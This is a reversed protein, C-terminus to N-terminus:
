PFRSGATTGTRTSSPCGRPRWARRPPSSVDWLKNSQDKSNSILYRADGKSHIFTIGDRHGSLQGVPQPRDERM